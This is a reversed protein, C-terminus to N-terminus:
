DFLPELALGVSDACALADAALVGGDAAADAGADAAGGPADPNAASRAFYGGGADSVPGPTKQPPLAHAM